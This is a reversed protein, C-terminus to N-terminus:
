PRAEAAIRRRCFRAQKEVSSRRSPLVTVVTAGKLVFTCGGVLVGTAGRSVGHAVLAAIATRAAARDSAAAPFRELYRDVAHVSVIPTM